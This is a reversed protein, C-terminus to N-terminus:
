LLVIVDKEADQKSMWCLTGDKFKFLYMWAKDAEDVKRCVGKGHTKSEVRDGPVFKM